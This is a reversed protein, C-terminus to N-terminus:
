YNGCLYPRLKRAFKKRSTGVYVLQRCHCEQGQRQVRQGIKRNYIAGFAKSEMATSAADFDGAHQRVDDADAVRRTCKALYPIANLMFYSRSDCVMMLKIGYKDPKNPIYMRFSCRGRFDLVQEDVAINEGPCYIDQCNKILPEWIERVAAFKDEAEGLVRTQKNDFCLCRLLFCFRRESMAARYAPAGLQIDFLESSALHNDHKVGQLLLVGILGQMEVVDTNQFTTRYKAHVNERLLTLMSNTHRVLTEVIGERILIKFYNELSSWSFNVPLTPGPSGRVINHISRRVAQHGIPNVSWM